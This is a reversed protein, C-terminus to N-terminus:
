GTSCQRSFNDHNELYLAALQLLDPNDDFFGIGANCKSCLLGRVTGTQHCHDVVLTGSQSRKNPKQHCCACLGLQKEEMELYQKKTLNYRKEIDKWRKKEIYYIKNHDNHCAKCWSTYGDLYRKNERFYDFTLAKKCKSCIKSNM